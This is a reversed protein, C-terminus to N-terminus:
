AFITAYFELQKVFHFNGDGPDGALNLWFAKDLHNNGNFSVVPPELSACMERTLCKNFFPQEITYLSGQYYKIMDLVEAFVKRVGDSVNYGFFGASVGQPIALEQGPPCYNSDTKHGEPYVAFRGFPAEPRFPKLSLMDVDLYWVSKGDLKIGAKDLAQVLRYKYSMGELLSKPKDMLIITFVKAISTKKLEELTEADISLFYTDGKQLTGTKLMSKVMLILMYLYQNKKASDPSFLVSHFFM